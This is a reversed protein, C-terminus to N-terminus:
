FVVALPDDFHFLRAARERADFVVRGAQISLAHGSRGPNAGHERLFREMAASVCDPKPWSTAANDFYIM